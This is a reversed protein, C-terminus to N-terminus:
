HHVFSNAKRHGLSSTIPVFDVFLLIFHVMLELWLRRSMQKFHGRGVHFTSNIAFKHIEFPLHFSDSHTRKAHMCIRGVHDISQVLAVLLFLFGSSMWKYLKKGGRVLLFYVDMQCEWVITRWERERKRVCAKECLPTREDRFLGIFFRCEVCADDVRRRWDASAYIRSQHFIIFILASMAMWRRENLPFQMVPSVIREYIGDVHSSRVNSVIKKKKQWKM